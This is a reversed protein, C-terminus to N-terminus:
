AGWDEAFVVEDGVEPVRSRDVSLFPLASRLTDIFRPVAYTVSFREDVSYVALEVKPNMIRGLSDGSDPDSLDDYDRVVMLKTSRSVKMNKGMSVIVRGDDFLEVVHGPERRNQEVSSSM